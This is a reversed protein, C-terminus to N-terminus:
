LFDISFRSVFCFKDIESQSLIISSLWLYIDSPASQLSAGRQGDKKMIAYWVILYLLLNDVSSTGSLLVGWLIM